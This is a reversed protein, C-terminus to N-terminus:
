GLTQYGSYRRFLDELYSLTYCTEEALKGLAVRVDAAKRNEAGIKRLKEELDRTLRRAEYGHQRLFSPDDEPRSYTEM